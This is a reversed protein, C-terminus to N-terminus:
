RSRALAPERPAATEYRFRGVLQQLDSAMRALDSSASSTQTAGETTSKAATAVGTINEAIEGSGRAAEGVNRSIENTTVTQEEVAGAIATQLDSIEQVIRAIQSIAEVTNRADAQIAIVRESIDETAKATGRALDKVESAVVAFGRGAEGARAAEITANLALLNTQEAISTIVKVVEGIAGSSEGLRQVTANTSEAVSVAQHAVKAAESANKAIERISTGMEETAAAVTQVNTSVQVSAASVVGAQVSTEEATASMTQSSVTLEESASALATATEAIQGISARLDGFLHSLGESMKAIAGDGQIKVDRTLDGSSAANVVELIRDVSERLRTAEAREREQQAQERRREEEARAAEAKRQQEARKAEAKEREAKARASEQELQRQKEAALKVQEGADRAEAAATEARAVQTKVETMANRQAAIAQNLAVAMRAMEDTGVVELDRSLDGAAVKELVVMTRDVSLKLRRAVVVALIVGLIVVIGAFALYLVLQRHATAIRRTAYAIIEEIQGDSVKAIRDIEGTASASWREPDLRVAAHAAGAAAVQRRMSDAAAAAESKAATTYIEMESDSAATRFLAIYTRAERSLGVFEEYESNEFRGRRAVRTVLARQRGLRDTTQLIMNFARLQRSWEADDGLFALQAVVDLMSRDLEVYYAVAEDAGIAHRDIDARRSPLAALHGNVASDLDAAFAKGYQVPKFETLQHRLMTVESDTRVRQRLLAERDEPSHSDLYNSTLRREEQAQHVLDAIEVGTEALDRLGTTQSSVRYTDMVFDQAFFLLGLMPVALMVTLKWKIAIKSLM